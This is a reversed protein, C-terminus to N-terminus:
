ESERMLVFSPVQLQRYVVLKLFRLSYDHKLLILGRQHIRKPNGRLFHIGKMVYAPNARSFTSQYIFM